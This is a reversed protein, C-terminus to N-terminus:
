HSIPIVLSVSFAITASNSITASRSAQQYVSWALAEDLVDITVIASASGHSYGLIGSM